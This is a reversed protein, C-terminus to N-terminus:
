GITRELTTLTEPQTVVMVATAVVCSDANSRAAFPVSSCPRLTAHPVLL